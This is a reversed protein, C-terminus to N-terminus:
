DTSAQRRYRRGHASVQEGIVQRMKWRLGRVLLEQQPEEAVDSLEVIAYVLLFREEDLEQGLLHTADVPLEGLAICPERDALDTLDIRETRAGVLTQPQDTQQAPQRGDVPEDALVLSREQVLERRPEERRAIAVSVLDVALRQGVVLPTEDDGRELRCRKRVGRQPV